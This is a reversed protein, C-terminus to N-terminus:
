NLFYSLNLILQVKAEDKYYGKFVAPGRFCMEGRPM